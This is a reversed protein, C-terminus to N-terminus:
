TLSLILLKLVAREIVEERAMALNDTNIGLERSDNLVLDIRHALKDKATISM